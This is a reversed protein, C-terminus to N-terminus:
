VDDEKRPHKKKRTHKTKDKAVITRPATPVRIGAQSGLLERKQKNTLRRRM